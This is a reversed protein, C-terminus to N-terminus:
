HRDVIEVGETIRLAVQAFRGPSSMARNGDTWTYGEAARGTSGEPYTMFRMGATYWDQRQLETNMADVLEEPTMQPM